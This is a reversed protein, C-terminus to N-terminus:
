RLGALPMALAKEDKAFLSRGEEGTKKSFETFAM